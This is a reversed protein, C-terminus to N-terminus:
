KGRLSFETGARLVVRSQIGSSFILHTLNMKLSRTDPLPERFSIVLDIDSERYKFVEFDRVFYLLM